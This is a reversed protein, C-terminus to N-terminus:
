KNYECRKGDLYLNQVGGLMNVDEGDFGSLYLTNLKGLMSVDMVNIMNSLGLTHLGGLMSVDEVDTCGLYLTHLGGLMSVDTVETCNLDLSHLRGLMSVDEVWTFGLDLSHVNSLDLSPLYKHNKIRIKLNRCKFLKTIKNYQISPYLIDKRNSYYYTLSYFRRSVQYLSLSDGKSENLIISLCDDSLTNM